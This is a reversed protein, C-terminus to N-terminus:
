LKQLLTNFELPLISIFIFSKLLSWTYRYTYGLVQLLHCNMLIGEKPGCVLSGDREFLLTPGTVFGLGEGMGAHRYGSPLCYIPWYGGFADSPNSLYFNNNNNKSHCIFTINRGIVFALEMNLMDLCGFIVFGTCNKLLDFQNFTM